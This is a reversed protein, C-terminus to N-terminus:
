LCSPKSARVLSSNMTRGRLRKLTLVVPMFVLGAGVESSIYSIKEKKKLL